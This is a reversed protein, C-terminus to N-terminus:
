QDPAITESYFYSMAYESNFGTCLLLDLDIVQGLFPRRSLNVAVESPQAGFLKSIIDPTIRFQNCGFNAALDAPFSIYHKFAMCHGANFLVLKLKPNM